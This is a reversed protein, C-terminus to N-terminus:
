VSLTAIDAFENVEFVSDLSDLSSSHCVGTEVPPRFLMRTMEIVHVTARQLTEESQAAPQHFKARVYNVPRGMKDSGYLFNKGSRFQMLFDDGAKREAARVEMDETSSTDTSNKAQQLAFGEGRPVIDDEVEM